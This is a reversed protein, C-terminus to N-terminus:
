NNKTQKFHEELHCDHCLTTLNEPEDGGGQSVPIIHHIELGNDVPLPIGYESLAAKFQGCKQCTFNDRYLIRMGYSGRGRNWVTANNFKQSCENSCFSKRRNNEIKKGCWQCYGDPVYKPKSYLVGEGYEEVAKYLAPLPRRMEYRKWYSEWKNIEKM